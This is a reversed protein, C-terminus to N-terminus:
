HPQQFRIGSLPDALAKQVTSLAAQVNALQSSTDDLRVFDIVVLDGNTSSTASIPGLSLYEIEIDHSM